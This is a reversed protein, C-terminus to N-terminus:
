KNIHFSKQNQAQNIAHLNFQQGRYRHQLYSTMEMPKISAATVTAASMRDGRIWVRVHERPLIYRCSLNYVDAHMGYKNEAAMIDSTVFTM